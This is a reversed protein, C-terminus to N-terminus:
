AVFLRCTPAAPDWIDLARFLEHAFARHGYENPHCANSMWRVFENSNVTRWHRTHDVLMLNEDAAHQRIADMYADIYPERDPAGGPVIPCTTQMVVAAGDGRMRDTLVKLNAKFTDLPVDRTTSCDNMGIMLLVVDPAFQRVRWDYQAALAVTTNGSIATNVVVDLTRGLEFRVREAFLQTYDRWGCTHRAGHTISDGYFLWKIPRTNDKLRQQIAHM